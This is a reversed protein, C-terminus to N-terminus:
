RSRRRNSALRGGRRRRLLVLLGLGAVLLLSHGDERRGPNSSREISTGGIVRCGCGGEASADAFGSDAGTSGADFRGGDSAVDGGDTGPPLGGDEDSGPGGDPLSGSEVVSIDVREADAGLGDTVTFTVAHDGLQDMTPTWTFRHLGEDFVAGTPLDSASFTLPDSDPDNATVDITLANGIEVTQGGIPDLIPPGNVTAPETVIIHMMESDSAMGDSVRFTIGYDGLQDIGPIWSFAGTAVDFAAGRPIGLNSFTLPNGDPDRAVLMFAVPDGAAVTIDAIPDLVPPRNPPPPATHRVNIRLTNSWPTTEQRMIREHASPTAVIPPRLRITMYDIDATTPAVLTTGGNTIFRNGWTDSFSDTRGDTHHYVLERHVRGYYHNPLTLTASAGGDVTTPSGGITMARGDFFGVATMAVEANAMEVGDLDADGCTGPDFTKIRMEVLGVNEVFYYDERLVWSSPGCYPLGYEVYKVRLATVSGLGLAAYNKAVRALEVKWGHGGRAPEWATRPIRDCFASETFGRGFIADERHLYWGDNARSPSLLYPGFYGQTHATSTITHFWGHPEPDTAAYLTGLSYWAPSGGGTFTTRYTKWGMTAISGPWRHRAWDDTAFFRLNWNGEDPGLPPEAPAWYGYRNDKLYRIPVTPVGCILTHAEAEIRAEFPVAPAVRRNEGRFHWFNGPTLNWFAAVNMSGPAGVQPDVTVIVPCGQCPRHDALNIGGGMAIGMPCDVTAYGPNSSCTVGSTSSLNAAIVFEGPGMPRGGTRPDVVNLLHTSTNITGTWRNAAADFTGAMEHWPNAESLRAEHKAFYVRINAVDAGPAAGNITVTINENAGYVDRMPSLTIGSCAVNTFPSPAVVFHRQCGLCPVRQELTAGGGLAIGGECRSYGPNGSCLQGGTETINTVLVYEGPTAPMTMTATFRNRAGDFTGAVAAWNAANTLDASVPAYYAVINTIDGGARSTSGVGVVQVSQGARYAPAAPLLELSECRVSSLYPQAAADNSGALWPLIAGLVAFALLSPGRASGSVARHGSPAVALACHFRASSPPVGPSHAATAIRCAM